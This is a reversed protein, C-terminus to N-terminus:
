ADPSECKERLLKLPLDGLSSIRDGSYTMSIKMRAPSGTFFIVVGDGYRTSERLQYKADPYEDGVDYYFTTGPDKKLIESIVARVEGGNAPEYTAVAIVTALKIQEDIELEHFQITDTLKAIDPIEGTPTDSSYGDDATSLSYSQVLLPSAWYAAMYWVAVFAIGFGGGFAMGQFFKRLM